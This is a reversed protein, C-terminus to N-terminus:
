AISIRWCPWRLSKRCAGCMARGNDSTCHWWDNADRRWPGFVFHQPVCKAASTIPPWPLSSARCSSSPRCTNRAGRPMSKLIISSLGAVFFAPM